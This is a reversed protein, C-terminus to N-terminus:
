RVGEEAIWLFEEDGPIEMGLFKAYEIIEVYVIFLLSYYVKM